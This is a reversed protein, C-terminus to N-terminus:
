IICRRHYAASIVSAACLYAWVYIIYANGSGSWAGTRNSAYAMKRLMWLAMNDQLGRRVLHTKRIQRRAGCVVAGRIDRWIGPHPYIESRRFFSNVFATFDTYYNKNTLVCRSQTFTACRVRVGYTLTRIRRGSGYQTVLISVSVQFGQSILPKLTKIGQKEFRTKYICLPM